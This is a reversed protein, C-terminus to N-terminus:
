THGHREPSKNTLGSSLYELGCYELHPRVLTELRDLERLITDCSNLTDVVGGLKTDDAFKRLALGMSATRDALDNIFIDFLIPRLISGQHVSITVPKGSSKTGSIVVKQVQCNLRKCSWREM